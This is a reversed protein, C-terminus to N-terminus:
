AAMVTAALLMQAATLIGDCIVVEQITAWSPNDYGGIIHKSGIYVSVVSTGSWAAMTISNYIGNIYQKNGAIGMNGSASWSGDVGYAHAGNAMYTKSYDQMVNWWNGVIFSRQEGDASEAGALVYHWDGAEPALGSFQVLMSQTQDTQAVFGTDLGAIGAFV